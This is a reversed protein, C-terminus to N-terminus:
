WETDQRDIAELHGQFCKLYEPRRLFLTLYPGHRSDRCGENVGEGGTLYELAARQAPSAQVMLVNQRKIARIGELNEAQFTGM